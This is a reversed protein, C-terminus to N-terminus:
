LDTSISVISDVSEIQGAINKDQNQYIKSISSGALANFLEDQLAPADQLGPAHHKVFMQNGDHDFFDDNDTDHSYYSSGSSRDDYDHSDSTKSSDFSARDAQLQEDFSGQDSLSPQLNYRGDLLSGRENWESEISSRDSEMSSRVTDLDSGGQEEIGAGENIENMFAELQNEYDTGLQGATFQGLEESIFELGESLYGVLGFSLTDLVTFIFSNIMEIGSTVASTVTSSIASLSASAGEFTLSDLAASLSDTIAVTVESSGEIIPALFAAYLESAAGATVVVLLTVAVMVIYNVWADIGGCMFDVCDGQCCQYDKSCAFGNSTCTECLGATCIGSTCDSDKQCPCSAQTPFPSCACSGNICMDSTCQGNSTCVMATGETPECVGGYCNGSNCDANSSCYCEAGSNPACTCVNIDMGNPGCNCSNSTDATMEYPITCVCSADSCTCSQYLVKGTTCSCTGDQCVCYPMDDQYGQLTKKDKQMVLYQPNNKIQDQANSIDYQITQYQKTDLNAQREHRNSQLTQHDQSGQETKAQDTQITTKDSQATQYQASSTISSPITATIHCISNACSYSEVYANKVTLTESHVDDTLSMSGTDHKCASNSACQNSAVCSTGLALTAPQCTPDGADNNCYFGSACQSNGGTCPCLDGGPIACQCSGFDVGADMVCQLGNGCNGDNYCLAGQSQAPQQCTGLTNGGDNMCSGSCCQSDDQCACGNGDSTTSCSSPACSCTSGVCYPQNICCQDEQSCPGGPQICQVCTLDQGCVLPSACTNSAQCPCNLGAPDGCSCIGTIGDTMDCVYYNSLYQCEQTTQCPGGLAISNCATLTPAASDQCWGAQGATAATDGCVACLLNTCCNGHTNGEQGVCPQGSAICCMDANQCLGDVCCGSACENGQKCPCSVGAPANPDCSCMNNSCVYQSQCSQSNYCVAGLGGSGCTTLSGPAGVSQCLGGQGSSAAILTESDGSGQTCAACVYETCCTGHTNGDQGTCPQGYAQCCMSSEQCLGDVCCGSSCESAQKCPCSIGAPGNPNCACMNESCIYQSQCAASNYCPAGLGGSGCNIVTWSTNSQCIGGQGAPAAMIDNSGNNPDYCAACIYESCCTGHTNGDQGTCPQGYAKCCMDADQCTGAWCCGTCCYGSQSCPLGTAGCALAVQTSDQQKLQLQALKQDIADLSRIVHDKHSKTNLENQTLVQCAATAYLVSLLFQIMNGIKM